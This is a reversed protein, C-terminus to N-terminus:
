ERRDVGREVGARAFLPAHRPGRTVHCPIAPLLCRERPPMTQSQVGSRCVLCIMSSGKRGTSPPLPPVVAQTIFSAATAQLFSTNPAAAESSSVVGSSNSARAFVLPNASPKRWVPSRWVGPVQPRLRWFSRMRREDITKAKPNSMRSSRDDRRSAVM